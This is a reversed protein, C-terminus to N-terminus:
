KKAAKSPDDAPNVYTMAFPGIGSIEVTTEGKLVVYHAMNAPMTMFSGAPFSKVAKPDVKDGMGASFDGSLVTVYEEIPHTHPMIKYNGPLKLRLSYYGAKFPDGALVAIKAGAPLVPPADAWKIDAPTYMAHGAAPAKADAKADTKAGAKPTDASALLPAAALAALILTTNTKM